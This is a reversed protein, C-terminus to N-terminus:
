DGRGRFEDENDEGDLQHMEVDGDVERKKKM